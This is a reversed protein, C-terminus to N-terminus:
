CDKKEQFYLGLWGMILLGFYPLTNGDVQEQLVGQLLATVGGSSEQVLLNNWTQGPQTSLTSDAGLVRTVDRATHLDM